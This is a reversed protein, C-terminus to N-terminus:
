PTVAQNYLTTKVASSITVNSLESMKTLVGQFVADLQAESPVGGMPDGLSCRIQTNTPGHVAVIQYTHTGSDVEAGFSM